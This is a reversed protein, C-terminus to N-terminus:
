TDAKKYINYRGAKTYFVIKRCKKLFSLVYSTHTGAGLKKVDTSVCLEPLKSLIDQTFSNLGHLIEERNIKLLKKDIIRANKYRSRGQKDDIKIIDCDLYVIRVRLHPHDLLPLIGSLERFIQYFSGHKPSKRYSRQTGDTNLMIIFANEIIPYVVTIPYLPLLTELKHKLATLKSTQIETICGDEFIDCIFGHLPKEQEAEEGSYLNKLTRHLHTENYTNIM